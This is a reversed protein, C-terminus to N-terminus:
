LGGMPLPVSVLALALMLGGVIIAMSLATLCYLLLDARSIDADSDRWLDPAETARRLRAEESTTDDDLYPHAM